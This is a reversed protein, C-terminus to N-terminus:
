RTSAVWAITFMRSAGAAWVIYTDYHVWFCPCMPHCIDQGTYADTDPDSDIEERGTAGTMQARNERVKLHDFASDPPFDSLSLSLSLSVGTTRIAGVSPEVTWLWDM